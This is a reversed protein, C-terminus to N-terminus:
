GVCFSQFQVAPMHLSRKLVFGLRNYCYIGCTVDPPKVLHQLSPIATGTRYYSFM